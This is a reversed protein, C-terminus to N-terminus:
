PLVHGPYSCTPKNSMAGLTYTGGSPCYPVDTHGPHLIAQIDAWNPIDSNTKNYELAWMQKVGDIM